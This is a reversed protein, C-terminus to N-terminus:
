LGRGLLRAGGSSALNHHAAAAHFGDVDMSM